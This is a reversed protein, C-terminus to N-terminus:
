VLLITPLTLHTYSVPEDDYRRLSPLSDFADLEAKLRAAREPDQELLRLYHDFGVFTLPQEQAPPAPPPDSHGSSAGGLNVRGRIVMHVVKTGLVTPLCESGAGSYFCFTVNLLYTSLSRVKWPPQVFLPYPMVRRKGRYSCLTGLFCVHTAATVKQKKKKVQQLSLEHLRTMGTRIRERFAEALGRKTLCDALQWRSPVWRCEAKKKNRGPGASVAGRLAAISIAVWKDDPVSGEKKLNDFLSKCDTFLVIPLEDEGFDEVSRWDAFGFLIDM